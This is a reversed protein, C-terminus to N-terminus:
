RALRVSGIFKTMEQDLFFDVAIVNGKMETKRSARRKKLLPEIIRVKVRGYIKRKTNGVEEMRALIGEVKEAPIRIGDVTVPSSLKLVIDPFFFDPFSKIGCSPVYENMSILDISDVNKMATGLERTSGESFPFFQTEFNYRGLRFIGRIEYLVRYYSKKEVVDSIIKNRIKDWEVDNSYSKRYLSCHVFRAYEDAIEPIKIDFSGIGVMTQILEKLSVRAYGERVRDEDAFAEQVFATLTFFVSLIIFARKM